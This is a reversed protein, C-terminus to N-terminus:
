VKELRAWLLTGQNHNRLVYLTMPLCARRSGKQRVRGSQSLSQTSLAESFDCDLRRTMQRERGLPRVRCALTAAAAALRASLTLCATVM